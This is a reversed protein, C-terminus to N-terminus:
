NIIALSNVGVNSLILQDVVCQATPVIRLCYDGNKDACFRFRGGNMVYDRILENRCCGDLLIVEAECNGNLVVTGSIIGAEAFCIDCKPWNERCVQNLCGSM